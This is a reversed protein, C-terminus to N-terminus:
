PREKINMRNRNYWTTAAERAAEPTAEHGAILNKSDFDPDGKRGQGVFWYYYVPAFGRPLVGLYLDHIRAWWYTYNFRPDGESENWGVLTPDQLAQQLVEPSEPVHATM